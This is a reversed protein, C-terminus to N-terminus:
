KGICFESFVRDLIYEVDGVGLIAGLAAWAQRLELAALDLQEERMLMPLAAQVYNEADQIALRHRENTVFIDEGDVLKEGLMSALTELLKDLGEGTHASLLVRESKEYASVDILDVKNLVAVDFHGDFHWTDEREADALFIVVDAVNAAEKARRVGEQEIVDTSERMGATD